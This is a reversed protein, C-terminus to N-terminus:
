IKYNLSLNQKYLESLLKKLQELAKKRHSISDKEDPLMEAFTKEFGEPQFVPDYGFGYSGKPEETIRGNVFGSLIYEKGDPFVLAIYCIFRATRRDAPVNKLEMLLKKVNEEDTAYDGAYRASKVGPRGQLADVELGSDDAIAPLGTKQAVYRAKKLANEEFSVANEKVEEIDEFDQISLLTIELDSLIRQLEELKKRNRTALVIKM